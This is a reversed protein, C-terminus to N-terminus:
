KVFKQLCYKRRVIAVLVAAITSLMIVAAQEGGYDIEIKDVITLMMIIIGMAIIVMIIIIICPIYSAFAFVRDM